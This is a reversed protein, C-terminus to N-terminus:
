EDAFNKPINNVSNSYLENNDVVDRGVSGGNASYTGKNVRNTSDNHPSSVQNGYSCTNVHNHPNRVSEARGDREVPRDDRGLPSDDRRVPSRGQNGNYRGDASGTGRNYSNRM